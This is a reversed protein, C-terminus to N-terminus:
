KQGNYSFQNEIICISIAWYADQYKCFTDAWEKAGKKKTLRGRAKRIRRRQKSNFM